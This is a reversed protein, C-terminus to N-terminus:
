VRGNYCREQRRRGIETLLGGFEDCRMPVKAFSEKVRGEPGNQLSGFRWDKSFM